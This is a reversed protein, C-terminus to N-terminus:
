KHNRMKVAQVAFSAPHCQREEVEGEDAGEPQYAKAGALPTVQGQFHEQQAM